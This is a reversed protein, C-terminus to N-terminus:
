NTWAENPGAWHESDNATAITMGGCITIIFVLLTYYIKSLTNM